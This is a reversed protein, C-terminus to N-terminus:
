APHILVPVINYKRRSLKKIEFSNGPFAAELTLVLQALIEDMVEGTYHGDPSTWEFVEGPRHDSTLVHAQFTPIPKAM